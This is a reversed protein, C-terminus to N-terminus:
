IMVMGGNVNITQGTIYKSENTSLFAIVNAIDEATGMEGLPIASLLKNKEEEPLVDTMKTKIFGPAVANVTISRAAYERALTKTMSILGGKSASYNAQGVNGMLGVVSAINIIRGFRRKMMKAILAKSLLFPTTLNLAIVADWDDKSMRLSLGDRTIGANNVLIDVGNLAEEANKALEIINKEITIDSSPLIVLREGKLEDYISQLFEEKVDALGITAGLSHLAKVTAKGIGGGAGTILAKKGNLNFM